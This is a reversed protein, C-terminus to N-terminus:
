GEASAGPDTGQAGDTASPVTGQTVRAAAIRRYTSRTSVKLYDAVDAPSIRFDDVATVLWEDCGDQHLESLLGADTQAVLRLYETRADTANPALYSYASDVDLFRPPPELGALARHASWDWDRPHRCARHRVPNRAIYRLCGILHRETRVVDSYFRNGFVHGGMDHRHNLSRAFDEHIRKFGVGLDPAPTRVLLHVHNTMLCFTLVSWARDEAERAVLRLYRQRDASDLFLVRGSPTKGSVHHVAGALEIRRRRPM